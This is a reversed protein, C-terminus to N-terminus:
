LYNWVQKQEDPTLRGTDLRGDTPVARFRALRVHGDSESWEYVAHSFYQQDSYSDANRRLGDLASELSGFLLLLIDCTFSHITNYQVTDM